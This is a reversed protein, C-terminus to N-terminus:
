GARRVSLVLRPENKALLLLLPTLVGYPDSDAARFQPLGSQPDTRVHWGVAAVPCYTVDKSVSDAAAVIEPCHEALLARCIRSTKAIADMFLAQVRSNPYPNFVSTLQFGPMLPKWVDFKTLAVVLPQPVQHTPGVGAHQRIRSAAELLIADQREAALPAGPREPLKRQIRPDKTPDFTFILGRSAALHRTMPTEAGDAGPRFHEGANDYLCLVRGLIDRQAARPHEGGPDLIFTYPPVFRASHGDILSERYRADSLQTKKVASDITRYKDAGAELFMRREDEILLRNLSLDGDQFRLGLEAARQRLAFTLSALFVSKGSGQAGLVSIVVGPLELCARPVLLKCRPCALLTCPAGEADLARGEVDFREPIFRKQEASGTVSKPLQPEGALKPHVSIWLVDAPPFAHWCNPCTVQTRFPTDRVTSFLPLGAM